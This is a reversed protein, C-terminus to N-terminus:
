SGYIVFTWDLISFLCSTSLNVLYSIMSIYSAMRESLSSCILNRCSLTAICFRISSDFYSCNSRFYTLSRLIIGAFSNFLTIPILLGSSVPLLFCNRLVPLNKMCDLYLSSPSSSRESSSTLSSSIRWYNGRSVWSVLLLPPLRPVRVWRLLAM